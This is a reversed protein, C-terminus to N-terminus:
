RLRELTLNAMGRGPSSLHRRVHRTGDDDLTLRRRRGVPVCGQYVLGAKVFPPRMRPQRDSPRLARPAAAVRPVDRHSVLTAPIFSQIADDVKAARVPVTDRAIHLADLIIRIAARENRQDPMLLFALRNFVLLPRIAKRINDTRGSELDPLLNNGAAIHGDIDFHAIRHRQPVDGDARADMINFQAGAKTRLHTARCTGTRLHQFTVLGFAQRQQAQLALFLAQDVQTTHRGNAFDAVGLMLILAVSFRTAHSPLADTGANTTNGHVRNVM